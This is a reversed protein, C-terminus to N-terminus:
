EEASVASFAHSVVETYNKKAPGAQSERGTGARLNAVSAGSASPDILPMESDDARGTGEIVPEAPTRETEAM